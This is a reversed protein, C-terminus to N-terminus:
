SHSSPLSYLLFRPPIPPIPPIPPLGRGIVCQTPALNTPGVPARISLLVDGDEAVKKPDTTWKRVSPFLDGFEAKGQFFPLGIGEENYSSGPPSQGQVVECTEGVTSAAWGLPLQSM